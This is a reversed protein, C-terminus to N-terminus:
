EMSGHVVVCAYAFSVSGNQAHAEFAADLDKKMARYADSGERPASSASMVRLLLGDRDLRQENPVVDRRWRGMGFLVDFKEPTDSKGQLDRYSPCHALLLGEYDRLFPTSETDRDNWVLAIRGGPRLIRRTEARMKVLDFWHFAQAATVVDVSQAGLTTAEARGAVSRFSVHGDLEAEAAARMADNPEVALIRAATELLLKSFIGTGSGLDAVVDTPRIRLVDLVARPYGPRAAVYADARGSFRATPDM